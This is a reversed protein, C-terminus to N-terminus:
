YQPDVAKTILFLDNDHLNTRTSNNTTYFRREFTDKVNEALNALTQGLPNYANHTFFMKLVALHLSVSPLLANNKSCMQTVIYFPELLENLLSVLKWEDATLINEPKFKNNTVYNQVSTKLKEPRKLM